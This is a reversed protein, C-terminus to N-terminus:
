AIVKKKHNKQKKLFVSELNMEEIDLSDISMIEEGQNNRKILVFLKNNIVEMKLIDDQSSCVRISNVLLFTPPNDSWLIFGKDTSIVTQNQFKLEQKVKHM